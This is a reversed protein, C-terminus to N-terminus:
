YRDITVCNVANMTANFVLLYSRIVSSHAAEGALMPTDTDPPFALSLLIKRPYLEQSLSEFMGRLAFKSAQM